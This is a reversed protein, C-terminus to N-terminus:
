GGKRSQMFQALKNAFEGSAAKGSEIVPQDFQALLQVSGSSVGLLLQKEGCQVLVAREKAGLPLTAIVRVGEVHGPVVNARRLAWALFFILAVVLLLGFVTQSLAEFSLPDAARPASDANGAANVLRHVFFLLLVAFFRKM